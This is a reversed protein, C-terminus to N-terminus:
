WRSSRTRSRRMSQLNQLQLAINAPADFIEAPLDVTGNSQGGPAKVDLTLKTATETSM